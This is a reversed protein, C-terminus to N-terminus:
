DIAINPRTLQPPRIFRSTSQHPPPPLGPEDNEEEEQEEEDNEETTKARKSQQAENSQTSKGAGLETANSKKDSTMGNPTAKSTANVAALDDMDDDEDDYEPVLSMM